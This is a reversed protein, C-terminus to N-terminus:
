PVKAQDAPQHSVYQEATLRSALQADAKRAQMIFRRTAALPAHNDFTIKGRDASVGLEAWINGLDVQVPKDKMEAYLQELVTTGTAEDGVKLARELPWDERELTGGNRVIARLSDQLGMRNNTAQRIAVDARLCYLAGGWYTRAWTHTNDLGQDGNGPEGKPMDRIVDRWMRVAKLQGAQVRAIPEVYTALGEEIWHHQRPMDPFALHVFEHTMIWDDDLEAETTHEGVPIRTFGGNQGFTTGHFIGEEGEVPVVRVRPHPVPFQGYYTSVAVAARRVWALVTGEPLDFRGPAFSVDIVAGPVRIIAPTIVDECADRSSPPQSVPFPRASARFTQRAGVVIVFVM